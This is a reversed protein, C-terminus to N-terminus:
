GRPQLNELVIVARDEAGGGVRLAGDIVQVLQLRLV